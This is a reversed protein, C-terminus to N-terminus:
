RKTAANVLKWLQQPKDTIIGDVGWAIMRKMDNTTNVPWPFVLVGSQRCKLVFSHSILQFNPVLMSCGLDKALSVADDLPHKYILGTLLNKDLERIRRVVSFHYSLIVVQNIVGKDHILGLVAEEIHEPKVEINVMLEPADSVIEFLEELTPIKHGEVLNLAQLEKLTLDAVAGIGDTRKDVVFDHFVVIKGDKSKQVDVEIGDVGLGIAKRVADVTNEISGKGFGRHAIVKVV